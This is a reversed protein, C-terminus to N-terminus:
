TPSDVTRATVSEPVGFLLLAQDFDHVLLDLMAGGSEEPRLLWPGWGPLGIQPRVYRASLAM